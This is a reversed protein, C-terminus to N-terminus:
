FCYNLFNNFGYYSSNLLMLSFYRLLALNRVSQLLGRITWDNFQESLRKKATMRKMLWFSKKLFIKEMLFSFQFYEGGMMIIWPRVESESNNRLVQSGTKVKDLWLSYWIGLRMLVTSWKNMFIRFCWKWCMYSM